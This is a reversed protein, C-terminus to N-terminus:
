TFITEGTGGVDKLAAFYNISAFVELESDYAPIERLYDVQPGDWTIFLLKM